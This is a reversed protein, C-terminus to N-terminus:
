YWGGFEWKERYWEWCDETCLSRREIPVPGIGRKEPVGSPSAHIRFRFRRSTPSAPSTICPALPLLIPHLGHPNGRARRAPARLPIISPPLLENPRGLLWNKRAPTQLTRHMTRRRPRHIPTNRRRIGHQKAPLQPNHQHITIHQKNYHPLQEITSTSTTNHQQQLLFSATSSNEPCKYYQCKHLDFKVNAFARYTRSKLLQESKTRGHVRGLHFTAHSYGRWEISLNLCM